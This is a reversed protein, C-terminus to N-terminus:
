LTAARGGSQWRELERGGSQRRWHQREPGQAGVAAATGDCMPTSRPSGQGGLRPRRAARRTPALRRSYVSHCGFTARVGGTCNISIHDLSTFALVVLLLAPWRRREGRGRMAM